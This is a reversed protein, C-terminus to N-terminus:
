RLVGVGLMDAGPYDKEYAKVRSRLMHAHMQLRAVDREATELVERLAPADLSREDLKPEELCDALRRADRVLDARLRIIGSAKFRKNKM